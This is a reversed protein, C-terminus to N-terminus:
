CGDRSFHQVLWARPMLLSLIGWKEVFEDLKYLFENKYKPAWGPKALGGRNPNALLTSIERLFPIGM